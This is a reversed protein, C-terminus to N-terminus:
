VGTHPKNETSDLRKIGLLWSLCFTSVYYCIAKGNKGWLLFQFKLTQLSMKFVAKNLYWECVMYNVELACNLPKLINLATSGDGIKRGGGRAGWRDETVRVEVGLLGVTEERGGIVPRNQVTWIFPVMYCTAWQPQCRENLLNELNMWTTAHILM